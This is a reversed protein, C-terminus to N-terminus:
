GGLRYMEVRRVMLNALLGGDAHRYMLMRFLVKWFKVFLSINRWTM